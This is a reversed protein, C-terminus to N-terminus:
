LHLVYFSYFIFGVLNHLKLFASYRKHVKHLKGNVSVHITYEHHAKTVGSGLNGELVRHYDPISAHIM